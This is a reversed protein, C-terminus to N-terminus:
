KTFYVEKDDHSFKTSAKKWDHLKPYDDSNGSRLRLLEETSNSRDPIKSIVYSDQKCTFKICIKYM